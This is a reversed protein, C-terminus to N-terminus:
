PQARARASAPRASRRAPASSCATLSLTVPQTLGSTVSTDITFTAPQGATLTVEGPTAGISCEDPVAPKFMAIGAAWYVATGLSGTFNQASPTSLARYGAVVSAVHAATKSTQQAQAAYGAATVKLAQRSGHGAIFGVVLDAGAPAVPGSAPSTGLKSTGAAGDLPRTAAVGSFEQVSLAVVAASATWKCSSM